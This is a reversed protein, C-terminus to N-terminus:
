VFELLICELEERLPSDSNHALKGTKLKRDIGLLQLYLINIKEHDANKYKDLLFWRNWIKLQNVIDLKSYWRDKLLWIYVVLRLNSILWYYFPMVDYHAHIMRMNHILKLADSQVVNDICEFISEEFEPIINEAVLNSTIHPNAIKLKEIESITKILNKNKREFVTQLVRADQDPFKRKIITMWDNENQIDFMKINVEVNEWKSKKLLKKFLKWRKDPNLSVFVLFIWDDVGDLLEWIQEQFKQVPKDKKEANAPIGNLIILRKEQFISWSSLSISQLLWSDEYNKINLFNTDWYKEIFSSKWTNLHDSLLLESNWHFFYIM